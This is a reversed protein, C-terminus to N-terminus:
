LPRKGFNMVRTQVLPAETLPLTSDIELMRVIYSVSIQFNPKFADLVNVLEQQPLPEWTLEVAENSRFIEGEGYHNLVNAPIVSMDELVRISWTLLLQQTDAKQAWPILLYRIDVPLSPRFRQGDADIRPALNRRTTNPAVQYLYLGVGELMPNQFDTAHFLEFSFGEFQGTTRADRLVGLITKGTAVIAQYTAM